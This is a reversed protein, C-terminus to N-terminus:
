HPQPYCRRRCPPPARVWRPVCPKGWVEAKEPVTSLHTALQGNGTGARHGLPPAEGGQPVRSKGRM